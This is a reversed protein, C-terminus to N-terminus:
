DCCSNDAKRLVGFDQVIERESVGEDTIDKQLRRAAEKLAARHRGHTRSATAASQRAQKEEVM